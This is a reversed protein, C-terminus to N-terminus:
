NTGPSASCEQPDCGLQEHIQRLVQLLRAARRHTKIGWFLVAGLSVAILPDAVTFGTGSTGIQITRLVGFFLLAFSGVVVASKAMAHREWAVQVRRTVSESTTQEDCSYRLERLRSGNSWGTWVLALSAFVISAAGEAVRGSAVLLVGIALASLCVILEALGCALTRLQAHRASRIVRGTSISVPEVQRAVWQDRHAELDFEHHSSGTTM